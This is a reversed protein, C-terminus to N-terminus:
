RRGAKEVPHLAQEVEDWSAGELKEAADPMTLRLTCM